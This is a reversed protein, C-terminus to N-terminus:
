RLMRTQAASCLGVDGFTEKAMALHMMDDTCAEGDSCKNLADHYVTSEVDGYYTVPVRESPAALQRYATMTLDQPADRVKAVWKDFDAQTMVRAAFEMDSFGDGSYNASFGTYTGPESGLLSLKTEMGPMTYIQSGLEPIFFSDMVSSSTMRFRVPTNAPFAVENVSAIKLDPYIFLWKWDLSVVEVDIPKASAAINRSPDLKHTSTWTVYGLVSVILCPVLWVVAEIKNSHGWDPTFAAQENSARYRWAFAITMAIVPVVVILMLCTSLFIISREDGGIPGKPDLVEFECGGLWPTIGLVVAAGLATRAKRQLMCVANILDPSRPRARSRALKDPM